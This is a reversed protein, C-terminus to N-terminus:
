TCPVRIIAAWMNGFESMNSIMEFYNRTSQLDAPIDAGDNCIVTIESEVGNQELDKSSDVSCDFPPPTMTEFVNTGNGAVLDALSQALLPFATIPFYLSQFVFLHLMTYDVYGYTNATKVPVPQVKISDYLNTLNQRIDDPSPAWFACRDPGADACGTYFSDMTKETDLLNNSWLAIYLFFTSYMVRFNLHVSPM